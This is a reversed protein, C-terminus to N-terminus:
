NLSCAMAEKPLELEILQEQTQSCHGWDRCQSRFQCTSCNMANEVPYFIGFDVAREVTEVLDGLRAFDAQYRSTQIRQVKPTKTKVLVTYEVNADRGYTERVAHVYCTPQLSSEVDSASYARGSTKFERVTLAEDSATILDAIALLPTELYEGKSNYLPVLIRHEIAIIGTIPPEKLYIELLNIGQAISDDRTDGERFQISEKAEKEDWCEHYAKMIATPDINESEKLRRHYEALGAHVSSGLVLNSSVTRSPLDLVRQFFFQLPCRLYQSIASYSWHRRSRDM